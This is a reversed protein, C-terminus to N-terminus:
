RHITHFIPIVRYYPRIAGRRSWRSYYFQGRKVMPLSRQYLIYKRMRLYIHFTIKRTLSAISSGYVFSFQPILM